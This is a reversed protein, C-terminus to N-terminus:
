RGVDGKVILYALVIGRKELGVEFVGNVRAPFDFRASGGPSVNETYNYGDIRVLDDVDSSVKVRVQQDRKYSLRKFGGVAKNKRVGLEVFGADPDVAPGSQPTPNDPSGEGGSVPPGGSNPAGGQSGGGVGGTGNRGGAGSGTDGRAGAPTDGQGDAPTTAGQGGAAGRRFQDEAAKQADDIRSATDDDSGGSALIVVVLTVVGFALAIGAVARKSL